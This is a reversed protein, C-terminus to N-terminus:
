GRPLPQWALQGFMDGVPGGGNICPTGGLRRRDIVSGSLSITTLVYIAPDCGGQTCNQACQNTHVYAIRRGAPSFAPRGAAAGIASLRRPHRGNIGIEHLTYGKLFVVARSDPSCDALSGQALHRSTRLDASMAYLQIGRNYIIQGDACPSPNTAGGTTIQRLGTGDSSVLYLDTPGGIQAQAAFVITRGDPMFAPHEPYALALALARVHGDLDGVFLEDDVCSDASCDSPQGGTFVISRGDPSFGVGLEPCVVGTAPSGSARAQCGYIRRHHGSGPQRANLSWTVVPYASDTSHFDLYVLAGARGPYTASAVAPLLLLVGVACLAVRFRHM